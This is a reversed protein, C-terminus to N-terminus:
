EGAPSKTIELLFLKNLKFRMTVNECVRSARGLYAFRLKELKRVFHARYILLRLKM